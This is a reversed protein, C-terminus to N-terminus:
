YDEGRKLKEHEIDDETVGNGLKYVTGREVARKYIAQRVPTTADHFMNYIESGPSIFINTGTELLDRDTEVAKEYEIKILNARLNSDYAYTLLTASLIWFALFVNFSELKQKRIVGTFVFISYLIFFANTM